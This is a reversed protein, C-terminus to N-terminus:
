LRRLAKFNRIIHFIYSESRVYARSWSANAQITKKVYILPSCFSSARQDLRFGGKISSNKWIVQLTSPIHSLKKKTYIESWRWNIHAYTGKLEQM